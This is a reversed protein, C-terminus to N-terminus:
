KEASRGEERLRSIDLLHFIGSFTLIGDELGKATDVVLSIRRTQLFSTNLAARYGGLVLQGPGHSWVLSPM